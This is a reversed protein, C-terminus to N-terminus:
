FLKLDQGMKISQGKELGCKNIMYKEFCLVVTSGLNFRALEEGKEIKIDLTTYDVPYYQKFPNISRESKINAKTLSISGVNTAGVKVVAIKRSQPDEIISIIRENRVLVTALKEGQKPNVTKLEGQYGIWGTMKGSIPFHIRHYDRPSLYLIIYFGGIFNKSLDGNPILESLLYPFSKVLIEDKDNFNGFDVVNGDVPSIIKVEAIPRLKPDIERTFFDQFNIYQDYGRNFESENLDYIKTYLRFIFKRFQKPIYIVAIIGVLSSLLRM